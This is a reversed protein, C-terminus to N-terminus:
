FCLDRGCLCCIRRLESYHCGSLVAWHTFMTKWLCSYITAKLSVNKGVNSGSSTLGQQDDGQRFCISWLVHLCRTAWFRLEPAKNGIGLRVRSCMACVIGFAGNSRIKRNYKAGQTALRFLTVGAVFPTTHSTVCVEAWCQKRTDSNYLYKWARLRRQFTIAQHWGRLLALCCHLAHPM